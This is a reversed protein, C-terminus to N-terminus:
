TISFQCWNELKCLLEEPLLNLDMSMKKTASIIPPSRLKPDKKSDKKMMLEPFPSVDKIKSSYKKNEKMLFLKDQMKLSLPLDPAIVKKVTGNLSLM